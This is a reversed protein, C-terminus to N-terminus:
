HRSVVRGLAVAYTIDINEFDHNWGRAEKRNECDILKVYVFKCSFRRVLSLVAEEMCSPNFKLWVMPQLATSSHKFELYHYGQRAIVADCDPFSPDLEHAMKVEAATKLDNFKSFETSDVPFYSESCLVVLTAVPCTFEGDRSIKLAHICAV